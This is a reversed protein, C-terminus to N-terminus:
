SLRIIRTGALKDHLFQRDRNFLAWLLGFGLFSIGIVAMLYRVMAQQMTVKGGNESVLRLKWTQMALTQGGHTWFWIFYIGGICLLYFQFLPRFYEASTDRFVLHFLFAAIFWVGLLLLFEYALALIRRGFGPISGEM